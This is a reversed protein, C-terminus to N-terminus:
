TSAPTSSRWRRRIPGYISFKDSGSHVSLKLNEPLGFERVALAIVALDEEFEGPSGASTAWTTSARTSGAASGRPSRRPRSHGRRGDAALIFLLEVPTQPRDTEDMSVETVFAETGKAREIHRYIAGAERVAPLFEERRRTTEETVM